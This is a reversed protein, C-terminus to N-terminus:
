ARREAHNHHEVSDARAVFVDAVPTPPFLGHEIVGAPAGLLTTDPGRM